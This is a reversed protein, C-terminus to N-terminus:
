ILLEAEEKLSEGDWSVTKVEYKGFSLALSAGNVTLQTQVSEKTNNLLRFLLADREDAKKITVVSVTDDKLSVTFDKKASLVSDAVKTPFINLGYPKQVFEQTARELRETPVVGLRFSFDSEGQDIKKVFRDTPILQREQIPHACYSVGRVLSMYIAGNEYHSGYTGTNMLVLSKEGCDIALFRHAVNERGDMFVPETGFATQGMLQGDCVPVKLKIFKDVDGMFVSVDVDIYDNNKYIKYGVRARTEDKEFFAEIGLYIEGNEIVQVSKLNKFVGSANDSLAFPAENEGVRLLQSRAMAGPDANDDFSVPQFGNKVYEVGDIAYRKLLGTTKDIEVYKRGDDYVYSEEIPTKEKLGYDVYM